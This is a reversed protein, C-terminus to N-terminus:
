INYSIEDAVIVIANSITYKLKSLFLLYGSSPEYLRFMDNFTVIYSYM